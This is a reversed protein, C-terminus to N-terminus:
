LDVKEFNRVSRRYSLWTLLAYIVACVAIAILQATWAAASAPAGDLNLHIWKFIAAYPSAAESTIFVAEVIIILVFMLIASVLFAKGAKYGSKYFIPMFVSNFVAFTIFAMGILTPCADLMPSARRIAIMNIAILVAYLVVTILQFIVIFWYRAKVADRKGVPLLVTFEIDKNQVCRQFMYFIANCVFFCPMLYPYNPILLMLVFAMFVFMMPHTCLKFEKYLLNRM